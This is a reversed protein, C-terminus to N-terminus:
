TRLSQLVRELEEPLPAEFTRAETEGPLILKLRHAHLFQRKLPLDTRRRGYTDDGVVPCNLFDMHLRIQHTRGTLIHVKLLTYKPFRELTYYESIAPRGRGPSKVAMRQRHYRDRGIPAEVRGKPTPPQGHVLALYVKGVERAQFQAQLWHHAADNKAFIICGSTDMDLRHVVGPRRKGGVGEIEPAHALVAHVLTGEPHGPAPHVVMGASKNIVLVDDNEFLIDLPVAEPQLRSPAPPPVEVEVKTGKTVSVGAKSPIEGNVKVHGEKILAQLRSRSFDPLCAVLFKDLRQSSDQEFVFEFQQSSVKSNKWV